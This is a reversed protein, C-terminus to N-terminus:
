KFLETIIKLFDIIPIKENDTNTFKFNLKGKRNVISYSKMSLGSLKNYRISYVNTTKLKNIESETLNYVTTYYNNVEDYKNKDYCTIISNDDLYLLVTGVIKDYGEIFVLLGANGDKAILISLLPDDGGFEYKDTCSYTKSGIFFTGNQASLRFMSIIIMLTTFFIKSKM